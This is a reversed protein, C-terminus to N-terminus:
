WPITDPGAMLVMSRATSENVDIVTALCAQPLKAIAPVHEHGGVFGLGVVAFGLNANSM